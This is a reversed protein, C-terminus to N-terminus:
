EEITRPKKRILSYKAQYEEWFKAFTMEARDTRKKEAPSEGKAILANVETAKIRAQEPTMVPYTGLTVREIIGGATRRRVSFTKVGTSSIRIQLGPIKADHYTARQGQPPIPLENLNGKTFNIVVPPSKPTKTHETM